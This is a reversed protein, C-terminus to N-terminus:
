PVSILFCRKGGEAGQLIAMRRQKIAPLGNDTLGRSLIATGTAFVKIESDSWEDRHYLATFEAVSEFGSATLAANGIQRM